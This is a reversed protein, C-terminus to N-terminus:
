SATATTHKERWRQVAALAAAIHNRGIGMIDFTDGVLRYFVRRPAPAQGTLGYYIGAVLDALRAVMLDEASQERGQKEPVGTPKARRAAARLRPLDAKTLKAPRLFGQDALAMIMAERAEELAPRALAVRNGRTAAILRKRQREWQGLGIPRFAALNKTKPVVHAMAALKTVAPVIRWDEGEQIPLLSLIRALRM